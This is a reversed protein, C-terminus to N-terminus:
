RVQLSDLLAWAEQRTQASARRGFAVLVHFNRGNDRFTFWHDTFHGHPVCGQADSGGDGHHPGFHAPRQPFHARRRELLTVLADRPGLDRLASTPMHYCGVARYRLRYTGASLVERPDTTTTLPRPATQWGSPLDYALGHGTFLALLAAFLHM